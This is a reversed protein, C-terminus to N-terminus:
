RSFCPLTPEPNNDLFISAQIGTPDMLVVVASAPFALEGSRLWLTNCGSGSFGSYGHIHDLQRFILFLICIRCVMLHADPASRLPEM